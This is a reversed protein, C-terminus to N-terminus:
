NESTLFSILFYLEGLVHHAYFGHSARSKEEPSAVNLINQKGEEEYGWMWGENEGDAKQGLPRTLTFM